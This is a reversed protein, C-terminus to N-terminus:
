RRALRRNGGGFMTSEVPVDEGHARLYDGLAARNQRRGELSMRSPGSRGLDFGRNSHDQMAFDQTMLRKPTHEVGTGTAFINPRPRIPTQGQGQNDFYSANRVKAASHPLPQSKDSPKRSMFNTFLNKYVSPQDIHNRSRPEQVSRQPTVLGNPTPNAPKREPFTLRGTRERMASNRFFPSAVSTSQQFHRKRPSPTRPTQNYPTHKPVHSTFHQSNVYAVDNFYTAHADKLKEQDDYCYHGFRNGGQLPWQPNSQDFAGRRNLTATSAMELPVRNCRPPRQYTDNRYKYPSNNHEQQQESQAQDHQSRLIFPQESDVQLPSRQEFPNEQQAKDKFVSKENRQTDDCGRAWYEDHHQNHTHERREAHEGIYHNDEDPLHNKECARWSNLSTQAHAHCPEQRKRPRELIREWTGDDRLFIGGPRPAQTVDLKLPPDQMLEDSGKKRPLAEKSRDVVNLKQAESPRPPPPMLVRSDASDSRPSRAPRKCPVRENPTNDKKSKRSPEAALGAGDQMVQLNDLTRTARGSFTRSSATDQQTWHQQGQQKWDGDERRERPLQRRNINLVDEPPNPIRGDTGIQFEYKRPPVELGLSGLRNRLSTNERVTDSEDFLHFTDVSM